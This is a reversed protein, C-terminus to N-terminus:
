LDFTPKRESSEVKLGKIGKFFSRLSKNHNLFFHLKTGGFVFDGFVKNKSIYM